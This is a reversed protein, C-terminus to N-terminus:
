AAAVSPIATAGVYPKGDRLTAYCIRALKNALACAAKNHNAREQLSMAWARMRDLPRGATQAVASM